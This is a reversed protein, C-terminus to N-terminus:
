WYKACEAALRITECLPMGIELESFLHNRWFKGPSILPILMKTMECTLLSMPCAVGWNPPHLSFVSVAVCQMDTKGEAQRHRDEPETSQLELSFYDQYRLHSNLIPKELCLSIFEVFLSSCVRQRGYLTTLNTSLAKLGGHNWSWYFLDLFSSSFTYCATASTKKKM